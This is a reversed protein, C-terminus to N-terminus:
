DRYEQNDQSAQRNPEEEVSTVQRFDTLERLERGDLL